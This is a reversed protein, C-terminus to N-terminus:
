EGFRATPCKENLPEVVAWGDAMAQLETPTCLDRMFARVEEPTRLAALAVFLNREAATELTM